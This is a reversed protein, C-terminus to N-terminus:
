DLERRGRRVTVAMPSNGIPIGVQESLWGTLSLGAFVAAVSALWTVLGPITMGYQWATYMVNRVLMMGSMTTSIMDLFGSLRPVVYWGVIQVTIWCTVFAVVLSLLQGFISTAVYPASPKFGQDGAGLQGSSFMLWLVLLAGLVTVSMTNNRQPGALNVEIVIWAMGAITALPLLFRGVVAWFIKVPPAPEKVGVRSRRRYSLAALIVATLTLTTLSAAVGAWVNKISFSVFLLVSLVLAVAFGLLYRAFANDDFPRTVFRFYGAVFWILALGGTCIILPTRNVFVWFPYSPYGPPPAMFRVLLYAWLVLMPFGLGLLTLYRTAVSTSDDDLNSRTQRM